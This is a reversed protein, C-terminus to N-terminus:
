ATARQRERWAEVETRSWLELAGRRGSGKFRLVPEPFPDHERARWRELTARAAGGCMKRVEANTRLERRVIQWLGSLAGRPGVRLIGRRTKIEVVRTRTNIREVSM